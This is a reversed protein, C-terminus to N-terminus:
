ETECAPAPQVRAGKRFAAEVEKKAEEGFRKGFNEIWDRTLSRSQKEIIAGGLFVGAVLGIFFIFGVMYIQGFM